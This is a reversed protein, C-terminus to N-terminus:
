LGQYALGFTFNKSERSNKHIKVGARFDGKRPKQINALEMRRLHLRAFRHIIEDLDTETNYHIHVPTKKVHAHEVASKDFLVRGTVAVM